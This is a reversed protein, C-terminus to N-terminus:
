DLLKLVLTKADEFVDTDGRMQSTLVAGQFILAIQRATEPPSRLGGETCWRVLRDEFLMSSRKGMTEIGRHKGKYEQAAKMALCGLCNDKNMMDRRIDFLAVIRGRPDAHLEAPCLVAQDALSAYHDLVAEILHEKSPFYKYLTRKSIGTGAMVLDVGTAHFGGDYFLRMAQEIIEQRKGGTVPTSASDAM